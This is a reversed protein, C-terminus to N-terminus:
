DDLGGDSEFRKNYTEDDLHWFGGKQIESKAFGFNGRVTSTCFVSKYENVWFEREDEKSNIQDYVVEDVFVITTIQGRIRKELMDTAINDTMTAIDSDAMQSPLVILFRLGYYSATPSLELFDEATKCDDYDSSLDMLGSRWFAKFDSDIYPDALEKFWVELDDSISYMFYDDTAYYNEEDVYTITVSCSTKSEDDAAYASVEYSSYIHNPSDTVAVIFEEGYKEELYSEVDTEVEHREKYIVNRSTESNNGCGTRIAMTGVLLFAFFFRILKM